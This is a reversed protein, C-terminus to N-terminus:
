WTVRKPEAKEKDSATYFPMGLFFLFYVVTLVRAVWLAVYDGGVIPIGKSFEGWVTTPELGLFGLLLCALLFLPFMAPFKPRPYRISGGRGRDLWPVIFLIMTAAGMVAVGPFQSNFMPPVARLMAYFPTFYWVPAIHPPTKLPD